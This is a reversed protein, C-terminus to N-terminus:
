LKVVSVNFWLDKCLTSLANSFEKGSTAPDPSSSINSGNPSYSLSSENRGAYGDLCGITPNLLAVPSPSDVRASSDYSFATAVM